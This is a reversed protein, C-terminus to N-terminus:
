KRNSVMVMSVLIIKVLQESQHVVLSFLKPFRLQFIFLHLSTVISIFWIKDIKNKSYSLSIQYLCCMIDNKTLSKANQRCIMIFSIKLYWLSINVFNMKGPDMGCGNDLFCLVFGGRFNEKPVVFPIFITM